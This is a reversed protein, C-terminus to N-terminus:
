KGRMVVTNGANFLVQMYTHINKPDFVESGASAKAARMGALIVADLVKKNNSDLPIKLEELGLKYADDEHFATFIKEVDDPTFEDAFHKYDNQMCTAYIGAGFAHMGIIILYLDNPKQKLETIKPDSIHQRFLRDLIGPENYLYTLEPKRIVKYKVMEGTVAQAIDRFLPQNLYKPGMTRMEEDQADLEKGLMNLYDWMEQEKREKLEPDTEDMWAKRRKRVEPDSMSEVRARVNSPFETSPIIIQAMPKSEKKKKEKTSIGAYQLAKEFRSVYDTLYKQREEKDKAVSVSAAKRQWRNLAPWLDALELGVPKRGLTFGYRFVPMRKKQKADSLVFEIRFADSQQGRDAVYDGAPSLVNTRVKYILLGEIFRHYGELALRDKQSCTMDRLKWKRGEFFRVVAHLTEPTVALRLEGSDCVEVAELTVSNFFFISDWSSVREYRVFEKEFEFVYRPDFPREIRFVYYGKNTTRYVPVPKTFIDQPLETGNTKLWDSLKEVSDTMICDSPNGTRTVARETNLKMTSTIFIRWVDKAPIPAPETWFEGGDKTDTMLRMTYHIRGIVYDGAQSFEIGLEEKYVLGYEDPETKRLITKVYYNGCPLRYQEPTKRYGLRSTAFIVSLFATMYDDLACGEALRNAFCLATTHKEPVTIASNLNLRILCTDPPCSHDMMARRAEYDNEDFKEKRDEEPNEEFKKEHKDINEM